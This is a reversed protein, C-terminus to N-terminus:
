DEVSKAAGAPCWPMTLGLQKHLIEDVFMPLQERRLVFCNKCVAVQGATTGRTNSCILFAAVNNPDRFTHACALCKPRRGASVAATFHRHASQAKPDTALIIEVTFEGRAQRKLHRVKAAQTRRATRNATVKM